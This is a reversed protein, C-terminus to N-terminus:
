AAATWPIAFYQAVQAAYRNITAISHRGSYIRPPILLGRWINFTPAGGYAGISLFPVSASGAQGTVKEGTNLHFTSTAGEFIAVILHSENDAVPMLGTNTALSSFGGNLDWKGNGTVGVLNDFGSGDTATQVTGFSGEHKLVLYMTRPQAVPATFAATRLFDDVGDWSLAKRYNLDAAAAVFTPPKNTASSTAPKNQPGLDPVSTVAAGDALALADVNGWWVLGTPDSITIPTDLWIPFTHVSPYDSVGSTNIAAVTFTYTQGTTLGTITASLVAGVDTHAQAIGGLHPTVRYGTIASGGQNAPATWEVLASTASALTARPLRPPSAHTATAQVFGSRWVESLGEGDYELAIRDRGFFLNSLDPPGPISM